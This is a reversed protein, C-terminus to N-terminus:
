VPGVVTLPPTRLTVPDSTEATVTLEPPVSIPAPVM